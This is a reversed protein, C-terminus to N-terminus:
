GVAVGPEAIASATIRRALAADLLKPAGDVCASRAAVHRAAFVGAFRGEAVIPRGGVAVLAVDRRRAELIAEAATAGSPPVVLLDAPLGVDLRGARPQRLLAAANATVMALLDAPSLAAGDRAARLEDLLDRSGSIRSDTAVAVRVGAAIADDVAAARGLLFANSAPCWALGAGAEAVRRWGARDIAVGHVIVTNAGLCGLADLRALEGAAAADVGEALHIMFPADAPTSRYRAAVSGGAEGRAGAPQRELAFSHAWGYRRVVRLPMTRRLEPYWPNHHAVTTVGALANKLAGIFLRDSLPHSKARVIAPDTSLRPRMDDIWESANAYAPRFKLRGYHNLELHDHANVLGPVVVAGALDVVLDGTRPPVGIGLVRSSFRISAAPAGAGAHVIGNVLSVAQRWIM